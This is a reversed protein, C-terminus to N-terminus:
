LGSLRLDHSWQADSIHMVSAGPNGGNKSHHLLKSNQMVWEHLYRYRGANFKGRVLRISLGNSPAGRPEGKTAM